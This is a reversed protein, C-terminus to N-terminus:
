RKKLTIAMGQGTLNLIQTDLDPRTTVADLYPQMKDKHSVANHALILGGPRVKPLLKTLYDFNGEKDADLLVIDIPGKINEVEDHADGQVQVVMGEAGAQKFMEGSHRCRVPDIEHTILKGGTKRLGLCFWMGSYGYSTGIEVVTQANTSEALIRLLRGEPPDINMMKLAPNSEMGGLVDLIKQEGTDQPVPGHNQSPQSQSKTPTSDAAFNCAQQVTLVLLCGCAIALGAFGQKAFM